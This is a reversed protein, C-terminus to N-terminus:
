FNFAYYRTVISGIVTYFWGVWIALVLGSGVTALQWRTRLNAVFLVIVAPALMGFYKLRFVPHVLYTATVIGAVPLLLWLALEWQSRYDVLLALAITLAAVLAIHWVLQPGGTVSSVPILAVQLAGPQLGHTMGTSGGTVGGTSSTNVSVFVLTPVGSAALVALRRLTWDGRALLVLALWGPGFVGFPHVLAGLVLAAMSKRYRRTLGYYLGWTMVAWLVGYMRLWTSQVVLYPSVATLFGAVVARSRTTYETALHYTGLTTFTFAVISIGITLKPGFFEILYYWTPLHPQILPFETLLEVPGYRRVFALAIKEDVWFSRISQVYLAALAAVVMLSAKSLQHDDLAAVVDKDTLQDLTSM